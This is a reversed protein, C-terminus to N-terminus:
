FMEEHETHIPIVNKANIEKIMSRIEEGSAHGSAHAFYEIIRFHELWRKKREEDLEMEDCFPECSSKIWIAEQPKIDVLQSIEWMNITVVYKHPHKCLHEFTISNHRSIYDREWVDYDQEIQKQSIGQKCILGWSRKPILIEVDELSFPCLDGLVNILHALKLNVVFKRNNAKAAQYITCIRDLDRFPFEVFVLAKADGILYTITRQVEAESHQDTQDIRTGEVLLWKPKVSKAKQVFKKSLESNSGHFRIDGTYVLNGEDSYIIFGCAGPLSHDVPVMEIELSGIQVKKDSRMITYNRQWVHDPQKRTVRSMEGKNNKYFTFAECVTILDSCANSGTDEIAQLIIRTAETCYIPIDGRIFHVYQAHDAHSHSLLVADFAREEKPRDMHMLYDKRYLGKIDPLLGLEFFDSFAACKRPQLFESFYKAAQKFSMGFDLFIRTGKHAVLIKNGGIENKGGWIEINMNKGVSRLCGYKYKCIILVIITKNVNYYILDIMSLAKQLHLANDFFHIKYM